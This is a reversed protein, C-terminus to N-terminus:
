ETATKEAYKLLEMMSEVSTPEGQLKEVIAEIAKM